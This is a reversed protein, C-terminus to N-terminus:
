VHTNATAMQPFRITRCCNSGLSPHFIIEPTSSLTPTPKSGASASRAISVGTGGACDARALPHISPDATEDIVILLGAGDISPSSQVVGSSSSAGIRQRRASRVVSGNTADSITASDAHPSSACATSQITKG